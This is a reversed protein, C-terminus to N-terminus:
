APNVEQYLVLELEQGPYGGTIQYFFNPSGQNYPIYTTRNTTNDWKATCFLDIKVVYLQDYLKQADQYQAQCLDTLYRYTIEDRNDYHGRVYDYEM